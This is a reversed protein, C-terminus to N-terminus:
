EDGDNIGEDFQMGWPRDIGRREAEARLWDSQRRWETGRGRSVVAM